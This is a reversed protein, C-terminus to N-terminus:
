ATLAAVGHNFARPFPEGKANIASTFKYCDYLMQLFLERDDSSSLNDAFGKWSDKERTLIDENPFRSM